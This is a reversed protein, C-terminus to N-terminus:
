VSQYAGDALLQRQRSTWCRPRSEARRPQGFRAHIEQILAAIGDGNTAVIPLAGASKANWKIPLDSKNAVRLAGGFRDVLEAQAAGLPHSQDLVLIILDASDLEISSRRIAEAEALDTTTRFGPTDVLRAALGDLDALEGVWDRTTGAVDAVISRDQAFLRNALTSKGVNPAGVIAITPPHLLWGLSQDALIQSLEAPTAERKQFSRWDSEQRLLSHLALETTAYGLYMQIERELEREGDFARAFSLPSEAGVHEFGACVALAIVAQLVWVGGHVSIDAVTAASNIVIVPDDIVEDGDM